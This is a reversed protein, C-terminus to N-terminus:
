CGLSATVITVAILLYTSFGPNFGLLTAESSMGKDWCQGSAQPQGQDSRPRLKMARVAKAGPSEREQMSSSQQKNPTQEHMHANIFM